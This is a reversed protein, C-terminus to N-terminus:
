FHSSIFGPPRSGASSELKLDCKNGQRRPSLAAPVRCETSGTSGQVGLEQEAAREIAQHIVKVEDQTLTREM